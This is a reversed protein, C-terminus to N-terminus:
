IPGAQLDTGISRGGKRAIKKNMLYRMRYYERRPHRGNMQDLRAQLQKIALRLKRQKTRRSVLRGQLRYLCDPSDEDCSPLVCKFCIFDTM